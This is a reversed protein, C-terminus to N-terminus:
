NSILRQMLSGLRITMLKSFIKFSLLSIPRFKKMNTAGIEKPILTISAFNLGLLDLTGAHFSNVMSM